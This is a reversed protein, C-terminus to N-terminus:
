TDLYLPLDEVTAKIVNNICKFRVTNARHNVEELSRTNERVRVMVKGMNDETEVVGSRTMRANMVSPHRLM